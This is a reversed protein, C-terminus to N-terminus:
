QYDGNSNLKKISDKLNQNNSIFEKDNFIDCGNSATSFVVPSARWQKYKYPVNCETYHSLFKRYYNNLETHLSFSIGMTFIVLILRLWLSYCLLNYLSFILPIFFIMMLTMLGALFLDTEEFTLYEDANKYSLYANYPSIIALCFFAICIGYTIFLQSKRSFNM